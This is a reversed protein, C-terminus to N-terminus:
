ACLKQIEEEKFQNTVNDGLFLQIPGSVYGSEVRYIQKSSRNAWYLLAGAESRIENWRGDYKEVQYAM